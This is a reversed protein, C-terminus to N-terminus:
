RSTLIPAAGQCTTRVQAGAAPRDPGPPPVPRGFHYGQASPCGLSELAAVQREDEVGEAVVDLRLTRGLQVIAGTVARDEPSTAIGDVFSKDIKLIDIPFRRLYSLSSFGTGFDDLALRLGLEKLRRLRGAVLPADQVLLSETLELTLLHPDLGSATLADAVDDAFGPHQFQRASVNINMRLGPAGPRQWAAAQRTAERTVWRGIRIILGTDEALPIFVQPSVVGRLPHNWRLLAEYGTVTGGPLAVIPQYYLELEGADLAHHLDARLRDLELQAAHHGGEFVEVRGKGTTKAVYMAIDAARLLGLEVAASTGSSAVGISLSVQVQRDGLQVPQALSRMIDAGVGAADRSGAAGALLVAFEDGALRAALDGPRLCGQIRAAVARLLTDGVDHGLTDNVPKLDDLDLFLVAMPVAATRCADEAARLRDMFLARNPLGTLTDQFAQTRLADELEHRDSVDRTTLVVGAVAPDDLLDAAVTEMWRWAGSAHRMRHALPLGTPCGAVVAALQGRHATVDDPHVLDHVDTDVLADRSHGLVATVSPTQYSIRGAPDVVTIIDSANRVLSRFHAGAELTDLLENFARATEGLEDDSDVGIRETTGGTWDGTRSGRAITEAVAHLHASLVALRGGVVVRCLAYNAAGVVFGAGLCAMVLEPRTAMPRPVGLLVTFYPFVVGVAVGLGVMYVALDWFVRRTLRLRHPRHTPQM